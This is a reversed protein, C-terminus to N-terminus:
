DLILRFVLLSLFIFVYTFSYTRRRGSSLKAEGFQRRVASDFAPWTRKIEPSRKQFHFFFTQKSSSLTNSIM